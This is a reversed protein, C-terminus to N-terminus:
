DAEAIAFDDGNGVDGFIAVREKTRWVCLGRAEGIRKGLFGIDELGGADDCPRRVRTSNEVAALAVQAEELDAAV